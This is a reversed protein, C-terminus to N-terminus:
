DYEQGPWWVADYRGILVGLALTLRRRLNCEGYARAPAWYTTGNGRTIQKTCDQGGYCSKYAHLLSPARM